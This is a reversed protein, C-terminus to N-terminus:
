TQRGRCSKTTPRMQIGHTLGRTDADELWHDLNRGIMSGLREVEKAFYDVLRLRLEPLLPPYATERAVLRHIRQFSSSNRLPAAVPKLPALFKRMTLPLLPAAGDNVTRSGIAESYHPRAGIHCCIKSITDRPRFCVDEYLIIAFQSADFHDFWRRLHSAYLGYDIFLPEGSDPDLYQEPPGQITGRRYLMKYHSYAREVPNRLQLVLRASPLLTSIRKAALPHAYYDASKEGILQSKRASSFISEYSDIGRDFETSFFHPEAKPMFIGPNDRLQDGVWTTASKAAGIVLFDPLRKEGSM